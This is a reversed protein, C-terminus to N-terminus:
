YTTAVSAFICGSPLILELPWVSMLAKIFGFLSMSAAFIINRSVALGFEKSRASGLTTWALALAPALLLAWFVGPM